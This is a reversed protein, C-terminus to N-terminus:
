GPLRDDIHGLGLAGLLLDPIAGNGRDLKLREVFGRLRTGPWDGEYCAIRATMARARREFTRTADPAAAAHDPHEISAFVAAMDRYFDRYLRLHYLPVYRLGRLSELMTRRPMPGTVNGGHQRYLCLPEDILSVPGLACALVYIWSDHLMPAAQWLQTPRRSWDAAEILSRRFLMTNGWCGTGFDHALPPEVVDHTIGQRHLGTPRLRADTIITTHLALLAQDHEIRAHTKALKEPLWVDDQDCFAILPASCASAVRFFNEAVGLHGVPPLIRVPFPAHAAFDRVIALTDDTSGDDGVVLEAPPMTQAALSALQEDLFRAGNWTTLAISIAAM